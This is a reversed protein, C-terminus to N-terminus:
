AAPQVSALVRTVYGPWDDDLAAEFNARVLERDEPPVGARGGSADYITLTRATSCLIAYARQSVSLYMGIGQQELEGQAAPFNVRIREWSLGIEALWLTVDSLFLVRKGLAAACRSGADLMLALDRGLPVPEGDPGVPRVAQTVYPAIAFAAEAIEADAQDKPWPLGTVLFWSPDTMWTAPQMVPVDKEAMTVSM